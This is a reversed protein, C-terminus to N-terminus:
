IRKLLAVIGVRMFGGASISGFYEGATASTGAMTAFKMAMSGVASPGAMDEIM